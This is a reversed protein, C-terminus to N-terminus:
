IVKPCGKQRRQSLQARRSRRPNAEPVRPLLRARGESPPRCRLGPAARLASSGRAANRKSVVAGPERIRVFRTAASGSPVGLMPKGALIPAPPALKGPAGLLSAFSRAAAPRGGDVIEPLGSSSVWSYNGLDAGPTEISSDHTAPRVGPASAWCPRPLDASLKALFGVKLTRHRDPRAPWVPGASGRNERVPELDALSTLNHLKALMPLVQASEPRPQALKARGPDVM